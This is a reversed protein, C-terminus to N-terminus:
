CVQLNFLLKVVQLAPCVSFNYCTKWSLMILFGYVHYCARLMCVVHLICLISASQGINHRCLTVFAFTEALYM